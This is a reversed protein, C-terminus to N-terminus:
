GALFKDWYISVKHLFMFCVPGWAQFISRLGNYIVDHDLHGPIPGVMMQQDQPYRPDHQPDSARFRYGAMLATESVRSCTIKSKSDSKFITPTPQPQKPKNINPKQPQLPQKSAISSYTLTRPAPASGQRRAQGLLGGGLGALGSSIQTIPRDIWEGPREAKGPFYEPV